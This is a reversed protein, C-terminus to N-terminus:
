FELWKKGFQEKIVKEPVEELDHEKLAGLQFPGYSLRILRNVVHGLHGMIKRIEQNKGETLSVKIWSNAGSGQVKELSAIVSGYQVGDVKIGNKLNKLAVESPTGFVRVKYRRVWGTSPLELHRTLAGSNTMLLLGESNYDLRGVSVLRPLKPYRREIDDFITDRNKPDKRSCM